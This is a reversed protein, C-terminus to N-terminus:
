RGSTQIAQNIWNSGLGDAETFVRLVRFDDGRSGSRVLALGGDTAGVWLRGQGAGLLTSIFNGPLGDHTTYHEVRGDARVLFLGINTGLWLEGPALQALSLM